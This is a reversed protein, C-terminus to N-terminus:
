YRESMERIDRQYGCTYIDGSILNELNELNELNFCLVIM